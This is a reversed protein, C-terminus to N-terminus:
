RAEKYDAQTAFHPDQVGGSQTNQIPRLRESGFCKLARRTLLREHVDDVLAQPIADRNDSSLHDQRGRPMPLGM